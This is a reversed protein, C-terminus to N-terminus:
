GAGKKVMAALISRTKTSRVAARLIISKQCNPMVSDGTERDTKRDIKRDTLKTNNPEPDTHPTSLEVTSNKAPLKRNVKETKKSYSTDKLRFICRTDFTMNSPSFLVPFLSRIFHQCPEFASKVKYSLYPFVPASCYQELCRDAM